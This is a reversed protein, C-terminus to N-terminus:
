ADEDDMLKLQGAELDRLLMRADCRGATYDVALQKHRRASERQALRERLFERNLAARPKGPRKSM